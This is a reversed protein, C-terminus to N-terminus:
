NFIYAPVYAEAGAILNQSAKPNAQAQIFEEPPLPYHSTQAAVTPCPQAPLKHPVGSVPQYSQLYELCIDSRVQHYTM